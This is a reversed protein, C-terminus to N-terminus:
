SGLMNLGYKKISNGILKSCQLLCLQSPMSVNHFGRSSLSRTPLQVGLVILWHKPGLVILLKCSQILRTNLSLSNTSSSWQRLWVPSERIRLCAQGIRNDQLSQVVVLVVYTSSPHLGKISLKHVKSKEKTEPM